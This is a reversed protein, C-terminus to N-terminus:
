RGVKEAPKPLTPAPAVSLVIAGAVALALGGAIGWQWGERVEDGLDAIGLVSPLVTQALILPATAATVSVRQLALSYCGFGVIGFLAIALGTALTSPEWQPTGLSRTALPVGAYAVGSLLGLLVGGPARPVAGALLAFLVCAAWGAYLLLTFRPTFHHEGVRGAAMALLSLGACVGLLGTWQWLRPWEGLVHASALATFLLSAAIASQALYLPLLQIAVYHLLAGVSYLAVVLLMLPDRAGALLLRWWPGRPLRRSARAQLAAPAGYLMAAALAAALGVVM